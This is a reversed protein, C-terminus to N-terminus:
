RVEIVKSAVVLNKKCNPDPTKVWVYVYYLGPKWLTKDTDFRCTFEQRGANNTSSLNNQAAPSGPFYTNVRTQPPGYSHTEDLEKLTMPRPLEEWFLDVSQLNLGPDLSGKVVFSEGVKVSVPVAEVRGYSHIFEQACTIRYSDENRAVSLGIGVKNHDPDLINRRHGDNPPQENFFGAEIAEVDKKAIKAAPDLKFETNGGADDGAFGAFEIHGNEMVFGTGGVSCYRQDPKRGTVDWHSLYGLKAMEDSHMTGAHEATEDNVVEKLGQSKRDRNILSIMYNKADAISMQDEEKAQTLLRPTASNAPSSPQTFVLNSSLLVFIPAFLKSQVFSKTKLM